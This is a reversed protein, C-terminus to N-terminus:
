EEVVKSARAKVKKPPPPPLFDPLFEPLAGTTKVSEFNSFIDDISTPTEEEEKKQQKMKPKKVKAQKEKVEKIRPEKEAKIEALTKKEPVIVPESKPISVPKVEQTELEEESVVNGEELDHWIQRFQFGERVLLKKTRARIIDSPQLVRIIAISFEGFHKDLPKFFEGADEQLLTLMQKKYHGVLWRYFLLLLFTLMYFALVISPYIFGSTLHTNDTFGETYYAFAVLYGVLILLFIPINFIWVRRHLGGRTPSIRGVKLYEPYSFHSIVNSFNEHSLVYKYLLLSITNRREGLIRAYGDIKEAPSAKKHSAHFEILSAIVHSDTRGVQMLFFIKFAGWLLILGAPLFVWFMMHPNAAMWEFASVLWDM